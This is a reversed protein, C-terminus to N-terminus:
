DRLHDTRDHGRALRRARVVHDDPREVLPDQWVPGGPGSCRRQPRLAAISAATTMGISSGAVEPTVPWRENPRTAREHASRGLWDWRAHSLRRRGQSNSVFAM